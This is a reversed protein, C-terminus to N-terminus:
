HAEREQQISSREIASVSEDLAETYGCAALMRALVAPEAVVPVYTLQVSPVAGDALGVRLVGNTRAFLTELDQESPVAGERLPLVLTETRVGFGAKEVTRVFTALDDGGPEYAVVAEGTAFNVAAERVGPVKALQREIRVACAACEMGEVPLMVQGAEAQAAERDTPVLDTQM